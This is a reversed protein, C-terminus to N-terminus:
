LIIIIFDLTLETINTKRTLNREMDMGGDVSVVVVVIVVLVVVIIIVDNNNRVYIKYHVWVITLVKYALMQIIITKDDCISNIKSVLNCKFPTRQVAEKKKCRV